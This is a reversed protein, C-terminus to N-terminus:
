VYFTAVVPSEIIKLHKRAVYECIGKYDGFLKVGEDDGTIARIDEYIANIQEGTPAESVEFEAFAEAKDEFYNNICFQVKM